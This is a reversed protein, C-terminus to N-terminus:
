HLITESLGDLFVNCYDLRPGVIATTEALEDHVVKYTDFYPFM